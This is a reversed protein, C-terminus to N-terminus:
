RDVLLGEYWLVCVVELLLELPESQVTRRMSLKLVCLEVVCPAVCEDVVWACWGCGCPRGGGM